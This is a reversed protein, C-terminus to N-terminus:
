AGGPSLAPPASPPTQASCFVPLSLTLAATKRGLSEPPPQPSLPHLGQSTLPGPVRLGWGPCWSCSHPPSLCHPDGTLLLPQPSPPPLSTCGAPLDTLSGPRFPICTKGRPPFLSRTHLHAALPWLHLVAVERTETHFSPLGASSARFAVAQDLSLPRSGASPALLVQLHPISSSTFSYGHSGASPAAIDLRPLPGTSPSSSSIGELPLNPTVRPGHAPSPATVEDFAQYSLRLKRPFAVKRNTSPQAPAPISGPAQRGGHHPAPGSWRAKARGPSARMDLETALLLGTKRTM